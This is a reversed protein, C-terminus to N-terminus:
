YLPRQPDREKRVCLSLLKLFGMAVAALALCVGQYFTQSGVGGVFNKMERAAVGDCSAQFNADSFLTPPYVDSAREQEAGRVVDLLLAGTGAGRVASRPGKRGRRPPPPVSLLALGSPVLAPAPSQAAEPAPSPAPAPAFGAVLPPPLVVPRHCFGRCHLSSELAKLFTTYPPADEYGQCEEVSYKRACEPTERINQLVQYYEYVRHTELSYDCKSTLNDYTEAAQRSLPMSVLVLALGLLTVFTSAMMVMAQETPVQPRPHAFFVVATAAYLAVVSLCLLITLIPLARGHWFAYNVDEMLAVANWIPVLSVMGLLAPGAGLFVNRPSPPRKWSSPPAQAASM